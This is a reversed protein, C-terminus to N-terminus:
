KKEQTKALIAGAPVDFLVVSGDNLAAALKKGDDSFVFKIVHRQGTVIRCLLSGDEQTANYFRIDPDTRYAVAICAGSPTFCVGSWYTPDGVPVKALQRGTTTERVVAFLRYTDRM